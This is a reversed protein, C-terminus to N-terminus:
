KLIETINTILKGINHKKVVVDRLNRVMEKKQQVDLNRVFNIKEAFSKADGKPFMLVSKYKGLIDAVAENCTVVPVESAIAELVAKDLSGTHSMNVFVDAGQLYQLLDKNPIPGIFSFINELDNEKVAGKIRDLYKKQKPTDAGGVVEVFVSVNKQSLTEVANILTEYDKVPSVRGVTIIRFIKNEKKEVPMFREVDIGHGTVCVKESKLRFSEKSATFITHVFKEAIRLKLDVSKHTYWLSIKKKWMRWLAGGLVIYVPNMHVFVVDYNKRERWILRYFNFVYRVKQLQEELVSRPGPNKLDSRERLEKGLSYVAVNKPLDYEGQELCIVSIRDAHKAFEIIWRHFFGLIPDNRDVKQTIILLKM